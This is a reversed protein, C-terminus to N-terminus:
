KKTTTPAPFMSVYQSIMVPGTDQRDRKKKANGALEKSGIRMVADIEGGDLWIGGCAVCFDIDVEIDAHALPHLQMRAHCRPCNIDSASPTRSRNSRAWVEPDASKGLVKLMEGEDFFNGECQECHDITARQNRQKRMKSLCRPCQLQPDDKRTGAM